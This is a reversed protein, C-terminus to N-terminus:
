FLTGKWIIQTCMQHHRRHPPRSGKRYTCYLRHKKWDAQQHARCCYMSCRCPCRRKTAQGCVECKYPILMTLGPQDLGLLTGLPDVVNLPSGPNNWVVAYFLNREQDPKTALNISTLVITAVLGEQQLQQRLELFVQQNYMRYEAEVADCLAVHFGVIVYTGLLHLLEQLNVVVPKGSTAAMNVESAM